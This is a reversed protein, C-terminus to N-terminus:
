FNLLVKMMTAQHASFDAFAKPADEYHYRDSVVRPLDLRHDKVLDIIEKMEGTLANRSGMIRLEKKQIVTFDFDLTRNSIGILIVRGRYAAADVANQFTSPLGVAEITVDFGNGDTVRDVGARFADPGENLITDDAGFSRARDLKDKAVDCITVEAKFIKAAMMAMIGITGSGIVLVKEGPRIEAQRVGHYSIGFPEVLALEEATIGKGDILRETPVVFYESFAGDRQVGMTKNDMCCNVYGRRCSYCTGCHFYPNATVLQGPRFGHTEGNIEVVEASFEHGPIRPYSGYAMTGRYVGLDSGCIGGTVMKLLTEGPQPVPMPREVLEMKGPETTIITKM